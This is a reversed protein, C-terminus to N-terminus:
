QGFEQKALAARLRRTLGIVFAKDDPSLLDSVDQQKALAVGGASPAINYRAHLVIKGTIVDVHIEAAEMNLVDYVVTKVM